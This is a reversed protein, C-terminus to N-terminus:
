QHSAQVTALPSLYMRHGLSHKTYLAKVSTHQQTNFTIYCPLRVVNSTHPQRYWVKTNLASCWKLQSNRVIVTQRTTEAWANNPGSLTGKPVQDWWAEALTFLIHPTSAALAASQSM